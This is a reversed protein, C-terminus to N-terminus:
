VRETSQQSALPKQERRAKVKLGNKFSQVIRECIASKALETSLGEALSVFLEDIWHETDEKYSM